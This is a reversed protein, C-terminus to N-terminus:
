ASDALPLFMATLDDLFRAGLPTPRLWGAARELLGRAQAQLVIPELCAFPLGTRAPFLAIPFGDTLRLVNLMFEFGVEPESVRRKGAVAAPGGAKALYDYPQRRKWQRMIGADETLKAHAGAGIGLYDGYTWYNLNHRCEFGPRAYNSVEYPRYGAQALEARIAEQMAWATDDDPLPPRWAHFPTGPELTLEYVSLHTPGLGVATRVDALAQELSQHPLAFMLDININEFGAARAADVAALAQARDHIRGLAKLQADDFSQIGLSLRNVGAARYGRLRAPEVTGPNAELTIEADPAIDLRTRIGALLREIAEPSFLSPTGGGLFVSQVRRGRARAADHELDRLLAAVYEDQPVTGRVAYSNFDCYPCKRQCWPLHVYLSLPPLLAIDLM